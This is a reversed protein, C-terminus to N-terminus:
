SNVNVFFIPANFRSIDRENLMLLALLNIMSFSSLFLSESILYKYHHNMGVPLMGM